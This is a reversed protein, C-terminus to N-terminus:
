GLPLSEMQALVDEFPVHVLRGFAEHRTLKDRQVAPSVMGCLFRALQRPSRLAPHREAILRQVLELQDHQIETKPSRPLSATKEGECWGCHGCDSKMKEGFHALLFRTACGNHELFRMVLALRELEKREREMFVRHYRAAVESPRAQEGKPRLRYRRRPSAPDAEIDGAEMLMELTRDVFEPSKGMATAAEERDIWLRGWSKRGSALLAHIAKRQRSPHGKLISEEPHRLNVRWAAYFSNEFEVLGEEELYVLLTELVSPRMDATLSLERLNVDFKRGRRLFHDVLQRVATETPTNALVFNELVTLDDACALIECHAPGGDRGARGAEQQYNELSKPLNFHYVARIDAKDIGMGFAITAVVVDVEGRMFADQTEARTEDSLGAHYARVRHGRRRLYATVHETTEQRTAYVVAPLRNRDSLRAELIELRDRDEVPTIRLYLNPRHYSTRVVDSARIRFARRIDGAVEPAATATLALVRPVALKRSVRALRLYEPRFHHGWESICHAEDVALLSVRVDRFSKQRVEAVLREPSMYLLKLKGGRVEEWLNAVEDELLTSDLRAAPINRRRLVDVQDKMLAILPSVVITLGEFIVAPLQYCLSKGGGTPLIALVSRGASLLDMVERQGPRFESHGFYRRLAEDLGM